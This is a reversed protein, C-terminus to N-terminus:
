TTYKCKLIIAIEKFMFRFFVVCFAKGVQDLSTRSKIRKKLGFPLSVYELRHFHDKKRWSNPEACSFNSTHVLFDFKITQTSVFLSKLETCSFNSM